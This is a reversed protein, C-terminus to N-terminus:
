KESLKIELNKTPIDFLMLVWICAWGWHSPFGRQIGNRKRCVVFWWVQRDKWVFCEQGKFSTGDTSFFMLSNPNSHQIDEFLLCAFIRTYNPFLFFLRGLLVFWLFHCTLTEDKGWDQALEMSRKVDERALLLELVEEQLMCLAVHARTSWSGINPITMGGKLLFDKYHTYLGTSNPQLDGSM